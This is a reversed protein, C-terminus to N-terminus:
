IRWGKNKVEGFQAPHSSQTPGLKPIGKIKIGRPNSRVGHERLGLFM